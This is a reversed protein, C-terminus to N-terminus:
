VALDQVKHKITTVANTTQLEVNGCNTPVRLRKALDAACFISARDKMLLLMLANTNLQIM